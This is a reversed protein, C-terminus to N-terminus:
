LKMFLALMALFFVNVLSLYLRGTRRVEDSRPRRDFKRFLLWVANFALAILAIFVPILAREPIARISFLVAGLLFGASVAYFVVSLRRRFRPEDASFRQGNRANTLGALFKWGPLSFQLVIAAACALVGFVMSIVLLAM